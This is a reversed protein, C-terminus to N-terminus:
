SLSPPHLCQNTQEAKEGQATHTIHQERASCVGGGGGWVCVGVCLCVRKGRGGRGGTIHGRPGHTGTAKPLSVAVRTGTEGQAAESRAIKGRRSSIHKILLALPLPPAVGTRNNLAACNVTSNDHDTLGKEVEEM